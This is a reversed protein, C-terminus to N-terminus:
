GSREADGTQAQQTVNFGVPNKREGVIEQVGIMLPAYLPCGTYHRPALSKWGWRWNPNDDINILDVDVNSKAALEARLRNSANDREVEDHYRILQSAFWGFREFSVEPLFPPTRDSGAIHFRETWVTPWGGETGPTCVVELRAASQVIM